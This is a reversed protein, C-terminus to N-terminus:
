SGITNTILEGAVLDGTILKNNSILEGRNMIFFVTKKKKKHFLHTDYKINGYFM